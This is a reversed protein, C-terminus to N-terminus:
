VFFLVFIILLGQFAGDQPDNQEKCLDAEDDAGKDGGLDRRDAGDCAQEKQENISAFLGERVPWEIKDYKTDKSECEQNKDEQIIKNM